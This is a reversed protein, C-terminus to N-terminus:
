PIVEQGFNQAKASHPGLYAPQASREVTVDISAEAIQLNNLLPADRATRRPVDQLSVVGSILLSRYVEPVAKSFRLDNDRLPSDSALLSQLSKRADM